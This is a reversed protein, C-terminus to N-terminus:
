AQRGLADGTQELNRVASQRVLELLHSLSPADERLITLVDGGGVVM